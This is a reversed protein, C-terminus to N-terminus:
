IALYIVMGRKGVYRCCIILLSFLSDKSGYITARVTEVYIRKGVVVLRTSVAFNTSGDIIGLCTYDGADEKRVNNITLVGNQIDHQVPMM